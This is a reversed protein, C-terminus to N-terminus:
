LFFLQDLRGLGVQHVQRYLSRSDLIIPFLITSHFLDISLDLISGLSFYKYPKCKLKPDIIMHVSIWTKITGPKLHFTSGCPVM